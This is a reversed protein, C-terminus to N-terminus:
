SLGYQYSLRIDTISGSLHAFLTPSLLDCRHLSLAKVSTHRVDANNPLITFRPPVCSTPIGGTFNVTYCGRATTGIRTRLSRKRMLMRLWHEMIKAKRARQKASSSHIHFDTAEVLPSNVVSPVWALVYLLYCCFFFSSIILRQKSYNEVKM